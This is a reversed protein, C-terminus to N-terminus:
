FVINSRGWFPLLTSIFIFTSQPIDVHFTFVAHAVHRHATGGSVNKVKGQGQQCAAKELLEVVHHVTPHHAIVGSVGGQRRYAHAKGDDEHKGRQKHAEGVAARHDNGLEVAGPM